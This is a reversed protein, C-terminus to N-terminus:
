GPADATAWRDAADASGPSGQPWVSRRAAAWREAADASGRSGQPWVSPTLWHDAADASGPVAQTSASPTRGSQTSSGGSLLVVLALVIVAACAGIVAAWGVAVRATPKRDPPPGTSPSTEPGRVQTTDPILTM